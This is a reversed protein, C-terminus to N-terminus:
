VFRTEEVKMFEMSKPLHRLRQQQKAEYTTFNPHYTERKTKKHVNAQVIYM